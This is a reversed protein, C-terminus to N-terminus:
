CVIYKVLTSYLATSYVYGPYAAHGDRKSIFEAVHERVGFLGQSHTYAGTGSPGVIDRMERARQIVDAPFMRGADIHDVGHEAPLDCLALVQRYFTIPRQQVGHPNGINFYMIERGQSALKEAAIVVQGRVAYQMRRVAQNMTSENWHYEVKSTDHDAKNGILPHNDYHTQFKNYGHEQTADILWRQFDQMTMEKTESLALLARPYVGSVAHFFAHVDAAHVKGDSDKDVAQFLSASGRGTAVYSNWQSRQLDTLTTDTSTTSNNNNTGTTSLCRVTSCASKWAADRLHHITTVTKASAAIYRAYKSSIQSLGM